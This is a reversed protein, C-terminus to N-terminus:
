ASGSTGSARNGHDITGQEASASKDDREQQISSQGARYMTEPSNQQPSVVAGHVALGISAVTAATQVAEKVTGGNQWRNPRPPKSQKNYANRLWGMGDGKRSM